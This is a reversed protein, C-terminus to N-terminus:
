DGLPIPQSKPILPDFKFGATKKKFEARAKRMLSADRCLDVATAAFIKSAQLSGRGAFPAAVQATRDRHHGQIGDSFCAMNFRGFPTLWSVTDEDSSAKGAPPFVENVKTKFNPEIGLTKTVWERDARTPKPPGFLKLNELLHHSLADNRLRSYIATLRTWKMRTGTAEAAGSACALLRKRVEDVQQRDKARIYYWSRAHAPVVNPADGGKCIVSHIRVNDPVHERLYNVAVDLLIVGDLASRGLHASAGHATIGEYDFVISDIAAGGNARVCTDASPHWGLCADLDRFAGDRAMYAKGALTEEAPCGYYVLKGSIGEKEMVAKAAVVGVAPATGLLNHGCGHGWTGEERGCNPLADYEGLVGVTPKGKGWEARLATPIKKFPFSVKFGRSELYDALLRSSKYEQFPREAFGHIAQLLEWSSKKEANVAQDICKKKIATKM